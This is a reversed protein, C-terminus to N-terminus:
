AVTAILPLTRRVRRPTAPAEIRSFMSKYVDCYPDRAFFTGTIAYARVPCGGHCISLSDCALCTGDRVLREPRARFRRRAASTELLETLSQPAFVNGFAYEPSSM